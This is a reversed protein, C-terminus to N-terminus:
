LKEAFCQFTAMPMQLAHKVVVKELWNCFNTVM